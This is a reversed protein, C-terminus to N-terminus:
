WAGDEIKPQTRPNLTVPSMPVAPAAAPTAAAGADAGAAGLEGLYYNELLAWAKSSHLAEFEETCDTGGVILISAGGGPHDRLFPTGNYVKDKVVFWCDTGNTGTNKEVEAMSIMKKGGTAMPALPAAAAAAAAPPAAAAAPKPAEPKAAAASKDAVGLSQEEFWGGFNGPGALRRPPRPALWRGDPM